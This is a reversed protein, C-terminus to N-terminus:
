EQKNQRKLARFYLDVARRVHEAVTLGTVKSVARLTKLQHDTLIIHMREGGVRRMAM